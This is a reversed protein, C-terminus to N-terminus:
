LYSWKRKVEERKIKEGEAGSCKELELQREFSEREKEKKEKEVGCM